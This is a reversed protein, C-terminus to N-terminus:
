ETEGAECKDVERGVLEGRDENMDLEGGGEGFNEEPQM